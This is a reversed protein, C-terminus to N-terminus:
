APMPKRDKVFVALCSEIIQTTNLRIPVGDERTELIEKAEDFIAADVFCNIKKKEM